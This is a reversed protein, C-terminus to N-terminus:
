TTTKDCQKSAPVEDAAHGAQVGGGLDDAVDLLPEVALVVPSSLRATHTQKNHSVHPKQQMLKM